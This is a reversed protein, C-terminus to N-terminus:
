EDQNRRIIEQMHMMGFYFMFSGWFAVAYFEWMFIDLRNYIIMSILLTICMAILYHKEFIEMKQANVM